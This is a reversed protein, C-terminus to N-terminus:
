HYEMSVALELFGTFIPYSFISLMQLFTIRGPTFGSLMKGFYGLGYGNEALM